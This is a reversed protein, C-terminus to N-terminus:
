GKSLGRSDMIIKAEAVAGAREFERKLDEARVDFFLNGVYVTPAPPAETVSNARNSGFGAAGSLTQGVATATGAISAAAESAVGRDSEEAPPPASANHYPAPEDLGSESSIAAAAEDSLASDSEEAAALLSDNERQADVAEDAEAESRLAADESAFRRQLPSFSSKSVALLSPSQNRLSTFTRTKASLFTSPSSSLM